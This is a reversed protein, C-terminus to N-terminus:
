AFAGVDQLVRVDRTPLTAQDVFDVVSLATWRCGVVSVRMLLSVALAVHM